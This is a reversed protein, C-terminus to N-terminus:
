RAYSVENNNQFRGKGIIKCFRLLMEM